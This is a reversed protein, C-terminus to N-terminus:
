YPYKEDLAYYIARVIVEQEGRELYPHMPISLVERSARESEPFDGERFGLEKLVPALHLPTPYHIATPIGKEKLKILVEDRRNGNIRITFQAFVSKYGKPIRQFSILGRQSLPKLLEFYTNSVRQRMEIENIFNKFKVRLIAAQIADLRSNLGLIEHCYRKKSGHVRIMRAREYISEDSTFVMGGDGYCGLPKSPFFSTVGVISLNLSRRGKYEAGFSQCGDEIVFLGHRKCIENISDMDACLGYLSVPMVGVVRKGEGKLRKIEDELLSPDLNFTEPDIDVFAPVAGLLLITEVTAIFTFPTTIVFDNPSVSLAMMSVLLGDTGSAVGVTFRSGVFESLERELGEVEKGLIYRGSSLVELVKQDMDKKLLKYQRKLDIFEM